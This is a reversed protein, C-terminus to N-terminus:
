FKRTFTMMIVKMGWESGKRNQLLEEMTEYHYKEYERDRSFNAMLMGNWKESIKISLMPMISVTEFYPDYGDYASDFETSDFFGTVGAHVMLMPVREFPLIYILSGGFNYRWGNASNEAGCKWIEGEDAGTYATYTWSINPRLIIKTWNSKPLFAVLPITAVIRYKIGYAFETMFMDSDYDRKEPNYVGMFTAYDGYNFSSHINGSIGFELLHMLEITADLNLGFDMISANLGALSKLTLLKGFDKQVTLNTNWAVPIALPFFLWNHLEKSNKLAKHTLVFAAWTFSNDLKVRFSTDVVAMDAPATAQTDAPPTNVTSDLVSDPATLNKEKTSATPEAFVFVASLLIATVSSFIYRGFPRMINCIYFKM